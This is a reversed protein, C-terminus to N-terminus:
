QGRSRYEIDTQRSIEQQCSSVDAGMEDSCKILVPFLTLPVVLGTAEENTNGYRDAM